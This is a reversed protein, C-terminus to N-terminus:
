DYEPGYYWGTLYTWAPHTACTLSDDYAFTVSAGTAHAAILISLIAKCADPGVGNNTAGIQCPYAYNLGAAPANVTVIGTPSVDVSLVPGSCFYNAFASTAGMTSALLVVASIIPKRSRLHKGM